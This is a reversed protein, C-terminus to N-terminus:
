RDGTTQGRNETRLLEIAAAHIRSDGAAIIRGGAAPSGNEWTTMVGGAGAIIPVL